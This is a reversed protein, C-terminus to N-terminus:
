RRPKKIMQVGSETIEVGAKELADLVAETGFRGVAFV